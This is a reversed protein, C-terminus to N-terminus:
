GLLRDDEYEGGHILVHFRVLTSYYQGFFHVAFAVCNIHTHIYKCPYFLV